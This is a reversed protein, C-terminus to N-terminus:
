EELNVDMLRLIGRARYYFVEYTDIHKLARLTKIINVRMTEVACYPVSDHKHNQIEEIFLLLKAAFGEFNAPIADEFVMTGDADISILYHQNPKIHKINFRIIKDWFDATPAVNAVDKLLFIIKCYIKHEGYTGIPPFEPLNHELAYNELNKLSSSEFNSDFVSNVLKIAISLTQENFM